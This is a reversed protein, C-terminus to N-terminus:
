QSQAQRARELEDLLKQLQDILADLDFESPTPRPGPPTPTAVSPTPTADPQPTTGPLLGGLPPSPELKGLAVDLARELTPEMVPSNAGIAVVIRKLEPFRLSEAQLYIPEVYLITEGIPLVLLNGRIIESGTEGWLTFQQSILVDNDIRAEVQAPGDVQKDKPFTFAILEGYHDGDSRAALWAILNPRNLPTFPLLLLFEPEVEGPLPMIVYYAEMPQSSSYFLEAPRSWLDEKAFFVREDTIHYTRFMTEQVNFLDEPYRIHERIESPMDEIPKFLDPYIGAYTNVIADDPEIIYFDVTGNFADVVVKVSNRIYNFRDRFPQSYPYRETTTFADQLWFLRGDAVVLYPDPDLSLFPAIRRVRETIQRNLMIKSDSTIQGSILLNFDAKRWAFAVRKVLSDLKVGGTGVYTTFEPTDQETPFDFEEEKTNVIVYRDAQEGFYIEPQQIDFIGEPPIDKLFFEPRGEETFENVPSMTIGYGHTYQLRKAVWSQAEEPLREPTIERASLMVQRIKGDIEYRDVDVDLFDYYPRFFQIQNLTDRLPRHDWLRLNDVLAPNKVIEESPMEDSTGFPRIEIENLGYAERTMAINREIYPTERELESPEVSFRQVAAPYIVLVVIVSVVWVGFASIPLVIGRRYASFVAAIGVAVSIGMMFRLAFLKATVDAYNAGFLTGNLGRSSLVLEKADFWYSWAVLLALVAFLTAVHLKVARTFTWKFGRLSYGVGYISIVGLISLITLGITWTQIFRLLPISFIYFSPNHGNLPDAISVGQGNVFATSNTFRLFNDWQDMAVVGMILGLILTVVIIGIRTLGKILVITEPPLIAPEDRRALRQALVINGLFVASFLGAGAFYLWVRTLLGKTYVAGYGLSDYWLWETYVNKAINLMVFLIIIGIGILSWKIVRRYPFNPRSLFDGPFQPPRGNPDGNSAM